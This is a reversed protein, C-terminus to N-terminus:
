GGIGCAAAAQLITRPAPQERYYPSTFIWRVVGGGDVLIFVPIANDPQGGPHHQILGLPGLLRENFDALLPIDTKLFGALMRSREVPDASIAVIEIGRRRLARRQATLEYLEYRAFPCYDGRYVMVLHPRGARLEGATHLAGNQDTLAFDPFRDGRALKLAFPPNLTGSLTYRVFRVGGVAIAVCALLALTSVGLKAHPSWIGLGFRLGALGLLLAAAILAYATYPVQAHIGLWPSSWFNLLLYGYLSAGGGAFALAVIMRIPQGPPLFWQAQDAGASQPEVAQAAGRDTAPAGGPESPAAGTM